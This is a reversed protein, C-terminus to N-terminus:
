NVCSKCKNYKTNKLKIVDLISSWQMIEGNVDPSNHFFGSYPNIEVIQWITYDVMKPEAYKEWQM